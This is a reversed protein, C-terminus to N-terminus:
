VMGVLGYYLKGWEWTELDRKVIGKKYVNQVKKDFHNRIIKEWEGFMKESM